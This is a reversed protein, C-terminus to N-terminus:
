ATSQSAAVVGRAGTHRCSASRGRCQHQEERARRSHRRQQEEVGDRCACERAGPEAAVAPDVSQHKATTFEGLGAVLRERRRSHQQHHGFRPLDGRHGDGDLVHRRRTSGDQVEDISIM